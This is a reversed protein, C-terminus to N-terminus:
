QVRQWVEHLEMEEDKANIIWITHDEEFKSSFTMSTGIKYTVNTAEYEETYTSDSLSYKGIATFFMSDPNAPCVQVVAFHDKSIIKYCMREEDDCEVKIDPGIYSGSVMKWAGNLVDEESKQCNLVMFFIFSCLLIISQLPKMTKM